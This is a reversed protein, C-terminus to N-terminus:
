QAGTQWFGAEKAEELEDNLVEPMFSYINQFMSTPDEKFSEAVAVADDIKKRQDDQMQQEKTDDWLNKSQLYKRVRLLPDKNKWAEVEADSRYKTPDDATTHMSMRYTLVEVLMPNGKRAEDLADKVVKYVGIVDNGDVQVGKIGAAMAKQALTQAATQESRPVSIAWENDEILIVLPVKKAGAFNLSEYFDGESTGGDGVYGLVAGGNKRQMLAFALGAAHPLQTAVPVAVALANFGKPVAGGDEYGRWGLVIKDIPAGRVLFVGHQRFNPVFYDNQGLALASGVQEGEQGVLPAYTAIRGQRQLSLAKADLARAFAMWKYMEVIKQDTVEKPFLAQDIAGNEDMVQFYEISDDFVKKQM